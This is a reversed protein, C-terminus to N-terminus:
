AANALPMLQVQVDPTLESHNLVVLEPLASQTLWKLSPRIKQGVLVVPQRGDAVLPAVAERVQEILLRTQERSLESTWECRARRVHEAIMHEADASLQTAHLAGSADCYSRCIGPALRQRVFEAMWVPDKTRRACDGMAELISALRRISIRERLLMQLVQQVDSLKLPEPILEDVVVPSVRRVQEILHRTADRTLISDAHRVVVEKLHQALVMTPSLLRMGQAAVEDAQEPGIWREADLEPADTTGHRGRRLREGAPLSLLRDVPLTGSGAEIQAIRICYGNSPLSLNDRIRVKPLIIGIEAAVASRVSGIQRLLDGGRRPDALSILQGGIEIELLDVRLLDELSADREDTSPQEIAQDVALEQSRPRRTQWFVGFGLAAAIALLPVAPLRTFVLLALFIGAMALVIPRGFLQSLLTSPLNFKSSNRTLLIGTALAILFAPIQCALGEGITLRTFVDVAQSVSLNQSLGIALGGAINVFSIIIAAIADGRVFKSAGDMAGYFDAQLVLTDRRRNAEAHDILGANLDADIAMQRGPMGDLAFRAAVESVRTAGKTVVVFQVIVIIAFIIAGIILSEGVVFSGFSDIVNGAAGQGDAGHSLILRTTSINLVMRGLTATLLISPFLSFELPSQVQLTTLLIVVALAINAVLLIDIVAAPVPVIMVVVGAILSASVIWQRWDGSRDAM